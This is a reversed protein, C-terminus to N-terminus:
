VFAMNSCLSNLPVDSTRQYCFWDYVFDPESLSTFEKTDRMATVPTVEPAHVALWNAFQRFHTNLLIGSLYGRVMESFRAMECDESAKSVGPSLNIGDYVVLPDNELESPIRRSRFISLYQTYLM